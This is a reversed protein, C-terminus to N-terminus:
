DEDEELEIVEVKSKGAKVGTQIGADNEQKIEIKMEAGTDTKVADNDTKVVDEEAKVINNDAKVEAKLEAGEEGAKLENKLDSTVTEVASGYEEDDDIPGAPASCAKAKKLPGAQDYSDAPLARKGNKPM